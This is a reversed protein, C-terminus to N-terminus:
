FQARKSIWRSAANPTRSVEALIAALNATDERWDTGNLFQAASAM